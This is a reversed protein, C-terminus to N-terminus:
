DGRWADKIQENVVSMDQPLGLWCQVLCYLWVPPVVICLYPKRLWAYKYITEMM